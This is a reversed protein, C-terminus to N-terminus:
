RTITARACRASRRQAAHRPRDQLEDRLHPHPRRPAVAQLDLGRLTEGNHGAVTGLKIDLDLDTQKQKAKSAAAGALSSKVFNRGDYVDGRMAVRLTGDTGRDAKLTAKDGDSLSFVPFNASVLESTADLEVTGKM